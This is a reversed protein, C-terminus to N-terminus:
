FRIKQPTSCLTYPSKLASPYEISSLLLDISNEIFCKTIHIINSIIVPMNLSTNNFKMIENKMM